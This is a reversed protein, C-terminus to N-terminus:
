GLLESVELACLFPRYSSISVAFAFLDVLLSSDSFALLLRILSRLGHSTSAVLRLVVLSHVISPHSRVSSSILCRVPGRVLRCRGL